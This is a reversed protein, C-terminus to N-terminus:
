GRRRRGVLIGGCVVWAAVGPSPVTALTFYVGADVTGTGSPPGFLDPSYVFARVSALIAYRGAALTGDFAADAAPTNDTLNLLAFPEETVANILRVRAWGFLDSPEGNENRGRLTLDATARFAIPTPADLYFIFLLSSEADAQAPASMAGTQATSSAFMRAQIQTANLASTQSGVGLAWAGSASFAAATVSREFLGFDPAVESEQDQDRGGGVHFAQAAAGVSREQLVPSIQAGAPLTAAASLVLAGCTREMAM